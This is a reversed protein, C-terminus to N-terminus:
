NEPASPRLCHGRVLAAGRSSFILALCRGRKNEHHPSKGVLYAVGRVSEEHAAQNQCESKQGRHSTGSQAGFENLFPRAM